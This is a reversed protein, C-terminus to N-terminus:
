TAGPKPTVVQTVAITPSWGVRPIGELATRTMQYVTGSLAIKARSQNPWLVVIPLVITKV